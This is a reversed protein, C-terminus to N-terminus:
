RIGVFLWGCFGVRSGRLDGVYFRSGYCTSRFVLFGIVVRFCLTIITFLGLFVFM